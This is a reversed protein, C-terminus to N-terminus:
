TKSQYVRFVLDRADFSNRVCLNAAGLQRAEKWFREEQILNSISEVWEKIEKLRSVVEQASM